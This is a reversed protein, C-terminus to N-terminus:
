LQVANARLKANAEDLEETLVRLTRALAVREIARGVIAKVVAPDYPKALHDHAGERIVMETSVTEPPGTLILAVTMPPYRRVEDLLPSGRTLGCDALVVDFDQRDLYTLAEEAAGVACVYYGQERLAHEVNALAAPDEDLVLVQPARATGVQDVLCEKGRWAPACWGGGVPVHM